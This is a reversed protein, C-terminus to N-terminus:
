KNKGIRPHAENEATKKNRHRIGIIRKAQEMEGGLSKPNQLEDWLSM